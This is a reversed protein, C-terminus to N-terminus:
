DRHRSGADLDRLRSPPAADLGLLRAAERTRREPGVLVRAGAPPEFVRDVLAARGAPTLPEGAPFRAAKLAATCRPLDVRTQSCWAGDCCLFVSSDGTAPESGSDAGPGDHGRSCSTISSHCINQNTGHGACYDVLYVPLSMREPYGSCREEAAPEVPFEPRHAPHAGGIQNAEGLQDAIEPRGLDGVL